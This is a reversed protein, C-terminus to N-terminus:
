VSERGTVLLRALPKPFWLAKRLRETSGERALPHALVAGTHASFSPHMSTSVRSSPAPVTAMELEPSPPWTVRGRHALGPGAALRDTHPASSALTQRVAPDFGQESAPAPGRPGPFRPLAKWAWPRPPCCRGSSPGPVACNPRRGSSGCEETGACSGPGSAVPLSLLAHSRYSRRGLM